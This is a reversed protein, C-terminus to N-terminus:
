QVHLVYSGSAKNQSGDIIVVVFEGAALNVTVQSYFLTGGDDDCGLSPGDCSGARVDLVTYFSSGNTDFTYSGSTPATFSYMVDPAGPQVACPLTLRDPEGQTTDAITIPV